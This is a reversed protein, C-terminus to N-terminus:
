STPINPHQYQKLLQYWESPAQAEEFFGQLFHLMRQHRKQAEAQGSKTKIMDKLKLIKEFLHNITTTERKVYDEKKIDKQPFIHPHFIPNNYHGGFTFCRTVGIYGMTDLYDADSLIQAELTQIQKTQLSKRFGTSLITQCVEQIITASIGAEQMLDRATPLTEETIPNKTIKADDIDHLLASLAVIELNAKESHALKLANEYVRRIHEWDHGSGETSLIAEVKKAIAQTAPSM